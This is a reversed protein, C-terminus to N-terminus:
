GAPEPAASRAGERWPVSSLLGAPSRAPSAVVRAGQLLVGPHAGLLWALEDDAPVEMDCPASRVRAWLRRPSVVPGGPRWQLSRAPVLTPVAPGRGRARLVLGREEWGMVREDGDASWRLPGVETPLGWQERCVRRAEASTVVQAMVCLGPRLGLRAPIALSLELYPGVPSDDYSM